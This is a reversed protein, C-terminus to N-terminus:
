SLLPSPANRGGIERPRRQAKGGQQRAIVGVAVAHKGTRFQFGGRIYWDGAANCFEERFEVRIAIPRDAGRFCGHDILGRDIFPKGRQRLTEIEIAISRHRAGFDCADLGTLALTRASTQSPPM